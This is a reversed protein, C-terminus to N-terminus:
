KQPDWFADGSATADPLDDVKRIAKSRFTPAPIVGKTRGITFSNFFKSLDLGNIFVCGRRGSGFQPEPAAM